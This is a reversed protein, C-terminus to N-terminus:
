GAAGVNYAEVSGGGYNAIMLLRGNPTLSVHSPGKGQTPDENLPILRRQGDDWQMAIVRGAAKPTEAEGRGCAYVYQGDTSLALFGPTPIVAAQQPKSLEGTETNFECVYIGQADGTGYTGILLIVIPM